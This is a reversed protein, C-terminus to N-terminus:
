PITSAGGDPVGVLATRRVSPHANFVGEIPVTCLDVDDDLGWAADYRHLHLRCGGSTGLVELVEDVQPHVNTSRRDYGFSLGTTAVDRHRAGRIRTRRRRYGSM